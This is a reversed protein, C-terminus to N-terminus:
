NQKESYKPTYKLRLQRPTIGFRLKFRKYFYSLDNFGCQFCIDSINISTTKLLKEAENLRQELFEYSICNGTAAKFVTCLRSKSLGVQKCLEEYDIKLNNAIYDRVMLVTNNHRNGTFSKLGLRQLRILLEIMAAKILNERNVQNTRYETLLNRFLRHLSQASDHLYFIRALDSNMKFEPSFISFFQHDNEFYQLLNGFFEPLFCANYITLQSSNVYYNTIDNPHIFFISGTKIEYIHTNLKLEGTGSVVYVIKWFDRCHLFQLGRDCPHHVWKHIFFPIEREM